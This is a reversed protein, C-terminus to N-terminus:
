FTGIVQHRTPIKKLFLMMMYIIRKTMPFYYYLRLCQVPFLPNTLIITLYPINTQLHRKFYILPLVYPTKFGITPNLNTECFFYCFNYLFRKTIPSQKDCQCAHLQEYIYGLDQYHAWFDVLCSIKSYELFNWQNTRWLFGKELEYINFCKQNGGFIKIAFDIKCM